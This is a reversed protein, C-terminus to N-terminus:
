SKKHLFAFPCKSKQPPIQSETIFEKPTRFFKKYRHFFVTCAKDWQKKFKSGKDYSYFSVFKQRKFPIVQIIPTGKPILGEFGEKILFPFNVPMPFKDTDVLGSFCLFPVEDTHQPQLFLCSWGRPTKIIWPNEWKFAVQNSYGSPIPYNGIQEFYHTNAIELEPASWRIDCGGERYEIWVDCPLPIYYGAGRMDNFPMCQKVTELPDGHHDIKSDSWFTSLNKFWQPTLQSAPYPKDCIELYKKEKAIFKIPIM